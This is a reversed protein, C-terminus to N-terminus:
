AKDEETASSKKRDIAVLFMLGATAAVASALIISLKVSLLGASSEKLALNAIFTSMTFGIGALMGMGLLRPNTMSDPRRSWGMREVSLVGLVIGIPKGVVLGLFVGIAVPDDLLARFTDASLTIGANLFVFLPLIVLAVPLELGHEWRRLPITGEQAIQEVQVIREHEEEKGLVEEPGTHASLEEAAQRVEAKVEAPHVRPRAPVTAAVIVGALSAHIGSQVIAAWLLIGGVAYAVPHRLGAANAFLLLSFIGFGILLPQTALSETYFIAIVSIAGIDDIIALGVLFAIMSQPVRSGLVTLIAIAIATDTAMPIGWGHLYGDPLVHNIALYILAPAVMGGFAAALLLRIRSADRLEGALLERKFELGILFFFCTILGDNVFHLFSTTLSIDGFILGLTYHQLQQFDDAASSNALFLSVILAILLAAGATAQAHAFEAFPKRLKDVHHELAPKSIAM